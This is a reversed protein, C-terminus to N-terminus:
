NKLGLLSRIEARDLAEILDSFGLFLGYGILLVLGGVFLVMGINKGNNM